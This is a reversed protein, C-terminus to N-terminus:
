LGLLLASERAMGSRLARRVSKAVILGRGGGRRAIVHHIARVSQDAGSM